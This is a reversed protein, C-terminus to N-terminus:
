VTDCSATYARERSKRQHRIVRSFGRLLLSRSDHLPGRAVLWDAVDPRTERIMAVFTGFSDAWASGFYHIIKAGAVESPVVEDFRIKNIAFNHSHSLVRFKVEARYVAIGLAVQENFYTGSYRSSIKMKMQDETCQLFLEGIKDTRRYAFAGAQWYMRMRGSEQPQTETMPYHDLEIGHETLIKRWYPDHPDGEGTSGIDHACSCPHAAFSEDPGLILETPEDVILVDSDIWIIEDADTMTEAAALALPKNFPGYFSWESPGEFRIWRVKLDRFRELTSRQLSPGKRPTVAIVECDAFRGGWRRLSEIAWLSQTELTGSEVCLVFAASVTGPSLSRSRM